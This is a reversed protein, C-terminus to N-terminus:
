QDFKVSSYNSKITIVKDSNGKGIHGKYTKSSSWTRGDDEPSKSTVSVGNDYTFGGNHVTVDFDANDNSLSSLKVPAYSSNVSLNKLNKALNIIQLGEGYRVNINGSTSLTGIKAPTYSVEANLRDASQLNLTGYSVKLDSGVLSEINVDGYRIVIVNEPNALAKTTLSGYSNKINVKGSLDPLVVSGYTNSITLASKAPMYVVYNVITKRVTTKGNMTMTGWFNNKHNEDGIVTTFNVGNNDKSDTIKVQDLLKQADDDENAYAKIEVDVKVENKAWTNVTVKGYRNDIQLKDNADIAYSKTYSKSKLKYEGSQVKKEFDADNRDFNFRLNQGIAHFKATFKQDFGKFTEAYRKTLEISNKKMEDTRLSSMEKQLDRMQEQLKQMKKRYASDQMLGADNFYLGNLTAMPAHATYVGTGNISALPTSYSYVSTVQGSGTAAGPATAKSPSASSSSSTATQGYSNTIAATLCVLAVAALKYVKSKM